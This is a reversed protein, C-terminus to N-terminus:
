TRTWGSGWARAPPSTRPRSGCGAPSPRAGDFAIAEVNGADVPGGLVPPVNFGYVDHAGLTLGQGAAATALAGRLYREEGEPTALAAVVEDETRWERTLTGEVTDLYWWGDGAELFVDGFLSAFAPRKGDLGLWTWAALATRFQDDSFTKTLEMGEV